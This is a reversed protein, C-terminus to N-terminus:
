TMPLAVCEDDIRHCSDLTREPNSRVTEAGLRVEGLTHSAEVLIVKLILHRDVVRDRERMGPFQSQAVRAGGVEITHQRPIARVVSIWDHISLNRDSRGSEASSLWSNGGSVQM